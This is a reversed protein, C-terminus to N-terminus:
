KRLVIRQTSQKGDLNVRLMYTGSSKDSLDIMIQEDTFVEQSYVVRGTVDLVALKAGKANTNNLTVNVIGNSPNPFISFSALNQEGIGADTVSICNSTESCNGVSIVVAYSGVTTPSFSQGTEGNVDANGNNCDIWQYTAGTQNATLVAGSESVTNDINSVTLTLVVTSDCGDLSNYSETYQGATTLTQTGFTYSDGPCITASATENYSPNVTLTLVVTSDCGTVSAFVETHAGATTLTQTGFTYSEGDCITATATENFTPNVTLTLVVTSDCGDVSNFLETYPGATTLTQTGFTYSEGDCITATATENYVPNVTLTLVVISDCGGTSTFTETYTNATTVTQTGFIYSDGDCIAADATENFSTILSLTLDVISDCGNVSTFTETYMGATTLNQTGFTYSGGVCIEATATENYVPNVTVTISDCAGPTVCGGEGRFYYTTTATPTVTISIGTGESTGGCSGSYWAWDTADNLTGTTISLTTSEGECITSTGSATATTPDDCASTVCFNNIEQNVFDSNAAQISDLLLGTGINTIYYTGDVTCSGYQSGYMGDGYSDNIIFDYCGVALCINSTFTEGGVVDGYPGGSAVINNSADQIEWTTESGWCDTNVEISIDEGGITASYNSFSNNNTADSDANNNPLTTYANFVHAGAATTMSPLTVVETGGAALLGTWNYVNNAGGDIDYNITVSTLDNTGFNRLAVEPIFNDVCYAGSPSTIGSIGADDPLTPQNPDWGDNTTAAGCSNPALYASVGLGWSIGLRGYYDYAGNNTTSQGGNNCAAAGGYLQGIIRGNQDFLPSGSSGPETVGEEWADIYWVGAGAANNHYPPNDERCIKMVDGAPHHIGTAQTISGDTDDNNWGAYFANWNQADTVTMNTIQLLAHDAETGQVLVTAGYATEDYPAGPDTSGATTACSETGPPSKWNFRFAWNLNDGVTAGGICHNATLFYPTGDNCTNNILAGTCIGSGNVVVMAVSNIQDEWGNGLPCNVDINCDGSSNLAKTLDKQIRDLSRYGHVVGSVTFHGLGNVNAPEYYELVVHEGHVLETGLKGSPSNNRSTFAGIKNTKDIDYLHMFAGEPIYLNEMLLNVTMAGECIFGMRWFRDGNPLNTWTGSNSLAYNTEYKYGFRWPVDKAADHIVDQADITERDFGQMTQTAYSNPNLSKEKWSTPNGVNKTQAISSVSFLAGVCVFLLKKLM